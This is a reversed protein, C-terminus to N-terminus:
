NPKKLYEETLGLKIAKPKKSKKAAQKKSLLQKESERRERHEGEWFITSPL